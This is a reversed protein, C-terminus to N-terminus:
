HPADDFGFVPLHRLVKVGLTDAPVLIM